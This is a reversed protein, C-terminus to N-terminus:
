NGSVKEEAVKEEASKDILCQIAEGVQRTQSPSSVTITGLAGGANDYMRITGTMTNWRVEALQRLDVSQLVRHSGIIQISGSALVIAAQTIRRLRLAGGCLLIGFPVTWAYLVLPHARWACVALVVVLMFSSLAVLLVWPLRSFRFVSAELDFSYGCEPCRHKSALGDLRYQCVPCELM